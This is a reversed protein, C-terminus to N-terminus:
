KKGNMIEQHLKWHRYYFRGDEGILREALGLDVMKEFTKSVVDTLEEESLKDWGIKKAMSRLKDYKNKPNNNTEM